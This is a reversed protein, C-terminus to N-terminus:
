SVCWFINATKELSNWAIPVYLNDVKSLHCGWRCPFLKRWLESWRVHILSVDRDCVEAIYLRILATRRPWCLQQIVSWERLFVGHLKGDLLSFGSLLELIRYTADLNINRLWSRSWRVLDVIFRGLMSWEPISGANFSKIRVSAFPRFMGLWRSLCFHVENRRKVIFWRSIILILLHQVQFFGVFGKWVSTASLIAIFLWRFPLVAWTRLNQHFLNIEITFSLSFDFACLTTLKIGLNFFRLRFDCLQFKLKM